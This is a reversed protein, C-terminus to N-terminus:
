PVNINEHLVVSLCVIRPDKDIRLRWIHVDVLEAISSVVGVISTNALTGAPRILGLM